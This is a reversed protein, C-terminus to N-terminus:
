EIIYVLNNELKEVEGVTEIKVAESAKQKLFSIIETENKDKLEEFLAIGVKNNHLDMAEELAENPSFKEHWDTFKKAWLIAKVEDSKWGLCKRIILIVWLSHRFANASNNFNHKDGYEKQAISM